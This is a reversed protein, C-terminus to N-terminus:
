TDCITLHFLSGSVTQRSDTCAARLLGFPSAVSMHCMSTNTELSAGGRSGVGDVDVDFADRPAVLGAGVNPIDRGPASRVQAILETCVKNTGYSLQISCRNGLGNFDM